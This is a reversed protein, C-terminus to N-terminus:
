RSGNWIIQYPFLPHVFNLGVLAKVNYVNPTYWYYGISQQRRVRDRIKKLKSYLEEDDDDYSSSDSSTSSSDDEDYRRKERHSKRKGGSQDNGDLREAVRDHKAMHSVLTKEQANTMKIPVSTIAFDAYKGTSNETINFHHFAGGSQEQLSFNYEHVEGVINDTIRSWLEHAASTADKAEVNSDFTGIIQPNALRFVPM